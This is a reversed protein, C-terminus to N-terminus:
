KRWKEIMRVELALSIVAEVTYSLLIAILQRAIILNSALTSFWKHLYNWEPLYNKKTKSRMKVKKGCRIWCRLAHWPRLHDSDGASTRVHQLSEQNDFVDWFDFNNSKNLLFIWKEARASAFKWSDTENWHTAFPSQAIICWIVFNIYKNCKWKKKKRILNSFFAVFTSFISPIINTHGFTGWICWCM